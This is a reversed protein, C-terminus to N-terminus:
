RNGGDGAIDWCSRDLLNFFFGFKIWEYTNESNLEVSDLDKEALLNEVDEEDFEVEDIKM